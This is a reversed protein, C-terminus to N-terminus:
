QSLDTLSRAAASELMEVTGPLRAPPPRTPQPLSPAGRQQSPCGINQKFYLGARGASVYAQGRPSVGIRAGKVGVSFGVGSKSLNLRLPGFGFARRLYFGM